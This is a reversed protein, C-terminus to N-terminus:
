FHVMVADMYTAIGDGAILILSKADPSWASDPIGM